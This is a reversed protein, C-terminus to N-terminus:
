EVQSALWHAMDSLNQRTITHAADYKKYTVEYGKDRLFQQASEINQIDLVQDQTGHSMFIKPLTSSKQLSNKIEPYLAGSLCVVGTVEDPYLLATSLTTIAGQSFGGIYIHNDDVQYKNKIERIFNRLLQLTELVQDASYSFGTEQRNLTFWSFKNDALQIPAQPCVVLFPGPIAPALSFLDKENSGYGHLLILVPPHTSSVHPPRVEYVLSSKEQPFSPQQLTASQAIAAPRQPTQKCTSLVLSSLLIIVLAKINFEQM